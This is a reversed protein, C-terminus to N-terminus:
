FPSLFFMYVLVLDLGSEYASPYDTYREVWVSDFEQNIYVWNLYVFAGKGVAGYRTTTAKSPTIM